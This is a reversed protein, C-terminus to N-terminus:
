ADIALRVRVTAFERQSLDDLAVEDTAVSFPQARNAGAVRRRPM